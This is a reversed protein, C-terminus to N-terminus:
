NLRVFRAAFFGDMGSIEPAGLDLDAPTTRLWGEATVLQPMGPLEDQGIPSLEADKREDLFQSVLKEGELPDLSCNAFVIRGGPRVLTISHKLLRLQLAALKNIDEATKTWPVDPHRRATGTSSCPADLLVADFLQKPVFDLLSSAVIDAGLGLRSLNLALRKLRSASVDVATVIAGANAMCATKGGPAACLDAVRRGKVDGMLSAALSAAVDQVWWAGESFGPLDAVKGDFRSLRVTGNALVIGGLGEAWKQPDSKVTLDLPAPVRHMALIERAKIGGYADALREVFWGPADSNQSLAAPLRAEKLGSWSTFCRM